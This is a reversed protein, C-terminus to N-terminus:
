EKEAYFSISDFSDDIPDVLFNIGDVKVVELKDFRVLPTLGNQNVVKTMEDQVESELDGFRITGIHKGAKFVLTGACLTEPLLIPYPLNQIAALQQLTQGYKQAYDKTQPPFFKVFVGASHNIATVKYFSIRREKWNETLRADDIFSGEPHIDLMGIFESVLKSYDGLKAEHSM